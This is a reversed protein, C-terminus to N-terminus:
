RAICYFTTKVLLKPASLCLCRMKNNVRGMGGGRNELGKAGLLRFNQMSNSHQKYSESFNLHIFYRKTQNGHCGALSCTSKQENESM